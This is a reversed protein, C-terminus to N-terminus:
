PVKAPPVAVSWHVDRFQWRFFKSWAAPGEQTVDHAVASVFSRVSGEVGTKQAPTLPARDGPHSQCSTLAAAMALVVWRHIRM